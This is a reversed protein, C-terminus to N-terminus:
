APETEKQPTMRQVKQTPWPAAVGHFQGVSAAAHYGCYPSGPTRRAGCFHFDDQRPHGIPWRCEHEELDVLQKRQDVPVIVECFFTEYELPPHPTRKPQPPKLKWADDVKQRRKANMKRRNAVKKKIVPVHHRKEDTLGLRGLRGIVANRTVVHNFRASMLVSMQRASKGEAWLQVLYITRAQTWWSAQKVRVEIDKGTLPNRVHFIKM